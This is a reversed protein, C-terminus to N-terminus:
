TGPLPQEPSLAANDQMETVDFKSTWIDCIFKKSTAYYHLQSALWTPPALPLAMFTASINNCEMTGNWGYWQILVGSSAIAKVLYRAWLQSYPSKILM